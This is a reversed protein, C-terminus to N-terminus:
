YNVSFLPGILRICITECGLVNLVLVDHEKLHYVANTIWLDEIKDKTDDILYQDLKKEIQVVNRYTNFSNRVEPRNQTNKNLYNTFSFDRKM